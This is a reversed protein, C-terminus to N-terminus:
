EAPGAGDEGDGEVVVLAYNQDLRVDVTNGDPKTVEVEWTAGNESDREVSNATGGHTIELAAATAKDASPGTVSANGGDGGIGGTAAAVGVGGAAIALVAGGAILVQSRRKM